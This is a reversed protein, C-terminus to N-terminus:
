GNGWGGSNTNAGKAELSSIRKRLGSIAPASMIDVKKDTKVLEIKSGSGFGSERIM